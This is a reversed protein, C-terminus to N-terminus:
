SMSPSRWHAVCTERAARRRQVLARREAAASGKMVYETLAVCTDRAARRRQVLARREAAASGKCRRVVRLERALQRLQESSRRRSNQSALRNKIRRRLGKLFAHDAANLRLSQVKESYRATSLGAVESVTMAIGRADLIEQDLQFSSVHKAIDDM